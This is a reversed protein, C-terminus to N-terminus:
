VMTMQVPAGLDHSEGKDLDRCGLYVRMKSSLSSSLLLIKVIEYGLGRNGGTVLAILGNKAEADQVSSM